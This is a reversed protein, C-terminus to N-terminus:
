LKLVNFDDAFCINNKEMKKVEYLAKDALEVLKLYSLNSDIQKAVGISYTINIGNLEKDISSKKIINNLKNIVNEANNEIFLIVFEDGGYRCVYDMKGIVKAIRSATEVIVRDGIIYGYTNNIKKFNDIDVLALYINSTDDILLKLKEYYDKFMARDPFHTLLYGNRMISESVQMVNLIEGFEDKIPILKNRDHNILEYDKKVRTEYEMITKDKILDYLEENYYDIIKKSIYNKINEGVKPYIFNNEVEKNKYKIIGDVDSIVVKNTINDLYNNLKNKQYEISKM